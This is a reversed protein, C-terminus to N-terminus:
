KAAKPLFPRVREAMLKNGADNFHLKDAQFLEPRVKGDKDFVMDTLECYKLHPVQKSYEKVLKNYAQEKDNQSWRAITPNQSIFVIDTDPLKTHMLAVFEKFDAFTQDVTRGEHIDNGGSRFFIMKPEYPFVIRDAFHTIDTVDSGGVGRNIVPQGPFDQALTTWKRITSAGTFVYCHKPPPNTRDSAEYAAIEKEWKAYNHVTNTDACFARTAVSLVLATLLSVPTLKM